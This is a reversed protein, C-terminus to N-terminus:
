CRGAGKARGLTAPGPGVITRSASPGVGVGLLTWRLKVLDDAASARSGVDVGAGTRDWEAIGGSCISRRIELAKGIHWNPATSFFGRM